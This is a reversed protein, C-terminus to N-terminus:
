DMITRELGNIPPRLHSSYLHLALEPLCCVLALRSLFRSVINSPQWLPFV